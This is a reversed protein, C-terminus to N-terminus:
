KSELVITDVSRVVGGPVHVAAGVSVRRHANLYRDLRADRIVQGNVVTVEPPAVAATAPLSVPVPTSVRSVVLAGAVAVFGAAVAVPALLRGRSRGAATLAGTDNAAQGAGHHKLPAPAMPVPERALQERLKLVFGRDRGPVGSLEDSRLVDGILHYAHWVHRAQDDERWARCARDAQEPAAQGDMLASLAERQAERPADASPDHHM